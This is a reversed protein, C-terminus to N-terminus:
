GHPDVMAKEPVRLIEDNELSFDVGGPVWSLPPIATPKTPTDKCTQTREMLKPYTFFFPLYADRECTWQRVYTHQYNIGLFVASRDDALATFLNIPCM